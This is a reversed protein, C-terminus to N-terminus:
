EHEISVSYEETHPQHKSEGYTERELLLWLLITCSFCFYFLAEYSITLLIFVPAFALYIVILRRLYYQGRFIGDLIPIAISMVSYM